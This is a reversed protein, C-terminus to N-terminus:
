TLHIYTPRTPMTPRAVPQVTQPDFGPPPPSIKRARGSRGQPGGLSRYLPYRNKGPSLVAPANRLGGLGDLASTLSLTSSYRQEREAGEHVTRPHVKLHVYRLVISHQERIELFRTIQIVAPLTVTKVHFHIGEQQLFQSLAETSLKHLSRHPISFDSEGPDDEVALMYSRFTVVTKRQRETEREREREREEWM